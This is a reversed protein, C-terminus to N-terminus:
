TPMVVSKFFCSSLTQHITGSKVVPSFTEDYDFGPRQNFDQAVLRAKYRDISGDAKLKVKYVWKSGIVNMSTHYLVLSWTKNHHLAQYEDNMAAVWKPNIAVEKYTKPESPLEASLARITPSILHRTTYFVKPKCARDRKRTVMPHTSLSPLTAPVTPHRDSEPNAAAASDPPSSVQNSQDQDHVSSDNAAPAPSPALVPQAPPPLSPVQQSSFDDAGPTTTSAAAVSPVTPPAPPQRLRRHYVIPSNSDRIPPTTLCPLVAPTPLLPALGPTLSRRSPLPRVTFSPSTKLSRAIPVEM